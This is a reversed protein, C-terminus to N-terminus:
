FFRFTSLIKNFINEYESNITEREYKYSFAYSINDKELYFNVEQSLKDSPLSGKFEYAQVNQFSIERETFGFASFLRRREQISASTSAPEVSIDLSPFDNGFPLNQPKITVRQGGNVIYFKEAKWDSPYSIEYHDTKYVQWDTKVMSPKILQSQSPSPFTSNNPVVQKPNKPLSIYFITGYILILAFFIILAKARWDLNKFKEM